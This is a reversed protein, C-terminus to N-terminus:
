CVKALNKKYLQLDDNALLCYLLIIISYGFFPSFINDSYGSINIHGIADVEIKGQEQPGAQAPFKRHTNFSGHNNYGKEATLNVTVHPFHSIEELDSPWEGTGNAVVEGVVCCFLGVVVLAGTRKIPLDLTWKKLQLVM